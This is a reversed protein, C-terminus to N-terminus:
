CGRLSPDPASCLEKLCRLCLCGTYRERLAAQTAADLVVTTCACPEADAMGCHFSGACRPCRDTAAPTPAVDNM